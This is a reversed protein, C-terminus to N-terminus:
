LFRRKSIFFVGEGEKILPPLNQGISFSGQMPLRQARHTLSFSKKLCSVDRPPHAFPPSWNTSGCFAASYSLKM